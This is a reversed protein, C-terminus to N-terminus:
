RSGLPAVVRSALETAVYRQDPARPSNPQTPMLLGAGILPALYQRRLNTAHTRGVHQQIEARSRPTSAFTLIARALPLALLRAVTPTLGADDAQARGQDAGDSVQDSPHNLRTANATLARAHIPLTVTFYSREADTEFIPEPSGNERMTRLMTPVGTGRGETLRLEKLFEGIRRNRDRRAVVRGTRLADVRVSPDPGPYSTIALAEPTVRVEIPERVDYGRDCTTRM